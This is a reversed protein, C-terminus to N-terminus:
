VRERSVDPLEHGTLPRRVVHFLHTRLLPLRSLPWYLSPAARALQPVLTLSRSRVPCGPFWAQIDKKTVPHVSRNAPNQRRMDYVLIVGGPRVVRVLELAIDRCKGPSPISSFLTFALGLDFSASPEPITIADCRHLRFGPSHAECYALADASIDVGALNAPTAGLQVLHRLNYGGGCGVEIARVTDLSRYGERVLAAAVM